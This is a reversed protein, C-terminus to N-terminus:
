IDEAVVEPFIDERPIAEVVMVQIIIRDKMETVSIRLPPHNLINFQLSKVVKTAVAIQHLAKFLNDIKLDIEEEFSLGVADVIMDGVVEEVMEVVAEEVVEEVPWTQIVITPLRHVVQWHPTRRFLNKRHLVTLDGDKAEM